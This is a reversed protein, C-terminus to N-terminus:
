DQATEPTSQNSSATQTPASQSQASASTTTHGGSCDASAAGSAFALIGLTMVIANALKLVPDDGKKGSTLKRCFHIYTL